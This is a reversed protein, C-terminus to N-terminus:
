VVKQLLQKKMRDIAEVLSKRGVPDFIIRKTAIDSSSLYGLKNFRAFMTKKAEKDTLQELYVGYIIAPSVGLQVALEQVRSPFAMVRNLHSQVTPNVLVDYAFKDAKAENLLLDPMDPTSFHYTMSKLLEFDNIVHHLEHLLSIWLKHYQKGMDTVVICPKDEIIIAGGYAKTGPTYAQTLVTVGIQYLVWVFRYYGNAEDATFEPAKRVLQLLLNRDYENPNGIRTFSRYACRLWFVTMKAEKEEAVKRKSKSFLTPLLSVDDYEYISSLGLFSCICHEYEEMKARARIIGLKRLAPIDFNKAVYSIRELRDFAQEDVEDAEKFYAQVFQSETLGLIKMIRVAQNLKLEARGELYKNLTDEHIKIEDALASPLIHNEKIFCSLMERLSSEAYGDTSSHKLIYM